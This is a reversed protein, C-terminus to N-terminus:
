NNKDYKSGATVGPYIKVGDAYDPDADSSAAEGEVYIVIEGDTISYMFQSGQYAKPAPVNNTGGLYEVLKENTFDTAPETDEELDIIADTNAPLTEDAVCAAIASYLSKANAMDASINAKARIKGFQPVAIAVLIAIIAIVIILEILTFGKKKKNRLNKLM